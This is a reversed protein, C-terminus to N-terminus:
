QVESICLSEEAPSQCRVAELDRGYEVVEPHGKGGISTASLRGREPIGRSPCKLM